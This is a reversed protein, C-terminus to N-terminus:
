IVPLSQYQHIFADCQDYDLDGQTTKVFNGLSFAHPHLGQKTLIKWVPDPSIVDLIFSSILSSSLAEEWEIENKGSIPFEFLTGPLQQAIERLFKEAPMKQFRIILPLGTKEADSFLLSEPVSVRDITGSISEAQIQQWEKQEFEGVMEPGSLWPKIQSIMESTVASIGEMPFGLLTIGVAACYRADHM